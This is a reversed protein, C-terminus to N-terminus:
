LGKLISTPFFFVQQIIPTYIIGHGEIGETSYGHVVSKWTIAFYNYHMMTLEISSVVTYTCRSVQAIIM